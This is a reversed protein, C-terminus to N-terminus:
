RGDKEASHWAEYISRVLTSLSAEQAVWIEPTVKFQIEPQKDELPLPELGPPWTKHPIDDVCAGFEEKCLQIVHSYFIILM